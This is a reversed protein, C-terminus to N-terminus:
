KLNIGCRFRISGNKEAEAYRGLDDQLCALNNLTMAVDSAYAEPNSLALRRRIELAETFNAEAETYRGLAKQLVALNNLTM